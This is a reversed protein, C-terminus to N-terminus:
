KQRRLHGAGTIAERRLEDRVGKRYLMELFVARSSRKRTILKDTSVNHLYFRAGADTTFNIPRGDAVAKQWIPDLTRM